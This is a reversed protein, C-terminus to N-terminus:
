KSLISQWYIIIDELSGQKNLSFPGTVAQYHKLTQDYCAVLQALDLRNVLEQLYVTIDPNNTIKGTGTLKLKAMNFFVILLYQFVEAAGFGQWKEALKIPDAKNKDLEILDQLLTQQNSLIDTDLLEIVKLPAGQAIVLLEDLKASETQITQTLWSLAVADDARPLNLRQCRSRITVPLSSPQHSVLIILSDEPPEELTKLLSNAANRNMSDAPDIVVVKYGGGQSSLYIKEILSRIQDIKIQKGKEEAELRIADPNTGAQFLICPKCEGCAFDNAVTRQCLLKASLCNSFHTLGIGAPGTLLLAHPLREQQLRSMLEQWQTEQWPFVKLM